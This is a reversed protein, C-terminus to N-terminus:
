DLYLLFIHQNDDDKEQWQSNNSDGNNKPFAEDCCLAHLIVCDVCDDSHKWHYLLINLCDIMTIIGNKKLRCRDYQPFFIM